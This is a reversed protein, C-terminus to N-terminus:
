TILHTLVGEILAVSREAGIVCGVSSQARLSKERGNMKQREYTWISSVM